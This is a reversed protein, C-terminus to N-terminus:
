QMINDVVEAASLFRKEDTGKIRVFNSNISNLTNLFSQFLETRDHGNNRQEDAIWPIDPECLLYLDPKRKVIDQELWDPVHWKYYQLWIKINVLDNDSFLIRHAFHLMKNEQEVISKAIQIVDSHNYKRDLKEIYARSYDPVFITKYHAALKEALTTKGTSEPGTISIRKIM